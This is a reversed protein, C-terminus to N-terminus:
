NIKKVDNTQITFPNLKIIQALTKASQWIQVKLGADNIRIVDEALIKKDSVVLGDINKQLCLEIGLDIDETIYFKQFPIQNTNLLSLVEINDAEVIINNQFLQLQNLAAQINAAALENSEYGEVDLDLSLTKHSYLQLLEQVSILHYKRLSVTNFYSADQLDQFNRNRISGSLNTELSLDMNKLGVMVSDQTIQVDVEVGDINYGLAEVFSERSNMHYQHHMGMGGKGLMKTTIPHNVKECSILVM